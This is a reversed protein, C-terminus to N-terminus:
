NTTRYITAGADTDPAGALAFGDNAEPFALDSWSQDPSITLTSRWSTGGDFSGYLYNYGNGTAAITAGQGSVAFGMTFGAEPAQSTGVFPKGLAPAVMMQKGSKSWGPDYTCVAFVRGNSPGASLSPVTDTACPASAARFHVGDHSIWYNGSAYDAGMSVQVDGSANVDGYVFSGTAGIGKVPTLTRGFAFGSYLQVANLKGQSTAVVFLRGNEAAIRAIYHNAPLGYLTVTSWHVGNNPSAVIDTGDSVALGLGGLLSLKVQNHNDPLPMPPAPRARWHAGADVTEFLGAHWSAQKKTYGLVWGHSATQWATSSPTFGTPISGTAKTTTTAAAPVTALLAAAAAAGACVAVKRTLTMSFM